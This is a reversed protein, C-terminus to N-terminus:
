ILLRSQEKLNEGILIAFADVIDDHRSYPFERFQKELKDKWPGNLIHLNGAELIPELPGAKTTKDAPLHSKNVIYRGYLARKLILYADKYAGFAEVYMSTYKGDRKVTERIHNDREPAEWQGMVIDKVWIEKVGGGRIKTVAGLVGVTYDPGGIKDREKKSSALDWCRQYNADPFDDLTDHWVIQDINFRNGERVTPEGQYLASWEFSGMTAKTKLLWDRDFRDPWLAEEKENLAPLSIVEWQEGGKEQEELLTGIM